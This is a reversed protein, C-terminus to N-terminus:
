QSMRERQVRGALAQVGEACACVALYEYGLSGADIRGERMERVVAHLVQETRWLMTLESETISGPVVMALESM